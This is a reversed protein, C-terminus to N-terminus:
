SVVYLTVDAKFFDHSPSVSQYRGRKITASLKWRWDSLTGAGKLRRKELVAKSIEPVVISFGPVVIPNEPVIGTDAQLVMAVLPCAFQLNGRLEM